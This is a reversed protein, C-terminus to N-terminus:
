LDPHTTAESHWCAGAVVVKTNEYEPLPGDCASRSPNCGPNNSGGRVTNTDFSQDTTVFSKVTLQSISLKKNKM